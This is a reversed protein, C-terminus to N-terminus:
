KANKYSSHLAFGIIISLISEYAVFSNYVGYDTTSLLKTFIPITLFTLGKLLYNGIIYGLGAKVIKNSANERM